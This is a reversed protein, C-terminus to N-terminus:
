CRVQEKGKKILAAPLEKVTGDAVELLLTNGDGAVGKLVGEFYDRDDVPQSLWVMISRGVIRRFDRVDKLPRDIGPSSVEILYSDLDPDEELRAALARSLDGCEDITVGGQPHDVLVRINLRGAAYFPKVEFLEMGRAAIVPVLIDCLRTELAKLDM